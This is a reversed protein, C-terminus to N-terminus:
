RRYKHGQIISSTVSGTLAEGGTGEHAGPWLGHSGCSIVVAQVGQVTFVKIVKWQRKPKTSVKFHESASWDCIMEDEVSKTKNTQPFHSGRNWTVRKGIFGQETKSLWKLNLTFINWDNGTCQFSEFNSTVVTANPQASFFFLLLNQHRRCKPVQVITPSVVALPLFGRIHPRPYLIDVLICQEAPIFSYHHKKLSSQLPNFWPAPIIPPLISNPISQFVSLFESHSTSTESSSFPFSSCPASCDLPFFSVAILHSNDFCGPQLLLDSLNGFICFYEKKLKQILANLVKNMGSIMSLLKGKQCDKREMKTILLCLYSVRTSSQSTDWLRLTKWGATFLSETFAPFPSKGFWGDQLFLWRGKLLIKLM